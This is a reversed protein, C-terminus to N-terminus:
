LNLDIRTPGPGAATIPIVLSGKAGAELRLTRHVASPALRPGPRNLDLDVTYDGAQGKSTTSPSTFFRSRDGVNLFRPLTGTLVVPDRIVVDAQAAGM